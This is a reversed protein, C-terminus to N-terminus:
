KGQSAKAIQKHLDGNATNIHKNKTYSSHKTRSTGQKIEDTYTKDKTLTKSRAIHNKKFNTSCFSHSPVTAMKQASSDPEKVHKSFLKCLIVGILTSFFTSILTPVFISAANESGATARLAIVAAPILQISTANIVLLLIMNDTAKEDHPCMANMANIGAPTAAGGMGLMNSALNISIWKYAEDSEHKFLRRVIPRLGRSLKQDLGTAQMMRLVSLWVAYIATLKLILLIANRVGEIMTPFATAPTTATLIVLSILTLATFAINM